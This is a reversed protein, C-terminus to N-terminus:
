QLAADPVHLYAVIERGLALLLQLAHWVTLGGLYKIGPLEQFELVDEGNKCAGAEDQLDEVLEAAFNRVRVFYRAGRIMLNTRLKQARSRIDSTVDSRYNANKALDGSVDVTKRYDQIQRLLEHYEPYFRDRELAYRSDLRLKKPTLFIMFEDYFCEMYLSLYDIEDQPEAPPNLQERVLDRLIPFGDLVGADATSDEIEAQDIEHLALFQDRYAKLEKLEKRVRDRQYGDSTSKYVADFQRILRNVRRM